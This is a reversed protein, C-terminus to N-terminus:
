AIMLAQLCSHVRSYTLYRTRVDAPGLGFPKWQPGNIGDEGPQNLEVPLDNSRRPSYEMCSLADSAMYFIGLFFM